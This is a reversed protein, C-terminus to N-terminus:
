QYREVKFAVSQARAEPNGNVPGFVRGCSERTERTVAQYAPHPPWPASLIFPINIETEAASSLEHKAKEAAEDLRQLALPDNRIDLGSQKQFETLSGVWSKRTLIRAASTAIATPRAYKLKMTM